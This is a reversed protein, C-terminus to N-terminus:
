HEIEIIPVLNQFAILFPSFTQEELNDLKAM